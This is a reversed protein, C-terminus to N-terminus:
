MLKQLFIAGIATDIVNLFQRFKQIKESIEMELPSLFNLLDNYMIFQHLKTAALKFMYKFDYATKYNLLSLIPFISIAKATFILLLSHVELPLHYSILFDFNSVLLFCLISGFDYISGSYLLFGFTSGFMKLLCIM